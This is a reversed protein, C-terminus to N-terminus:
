LAPGSSLRARYLRRQRRYHHDPENQAATAWRERLRAKDLGAHPHGLGHRAFARRLTPASIQFASAAALISQERALQFAQGVLKADAMFHMAWSRPRGPRGLEHRDWARYLVDIRVGLQDAALYTGLRGALQFSSAAFEPDDVPDPLNPEHKLWGLQRLARDILFPAAAPRAPRGAPHRGLGSYAWSRQLTRGSVGLGAAAPQVGIAAALDFSIRAFAPDTGLRSSSGRTPFRRKRRRQRQASREAPTLGGFIGFFDDEPPQSLAFGLCDAQVPCGACIQKAPAAQAAADTEPDFDFLLPDAARCAAKDRWGSGAALAALPEASM